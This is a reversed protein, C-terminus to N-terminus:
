YAFVQRARLKEHKVIDKGEDSDANTNAITKLTDEMENLQEELVVSKLAENRRKTEVIQSKLTDIARTRNGAQYSFAAQERTRAAAAAEFAETVDRRDGAAVERDNQTATMSVWGQYERVDEGVPANFSLVINSVDVKGEPAGTTKLEVMVRRKEGAAMDGVPIIVHGRRNETRYGYVQSIAM